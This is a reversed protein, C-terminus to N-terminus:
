DSARAGSCAALRGAREDLEDAREDEQQEELLMQLCTFILEQRDASLECFAAMMQVDTSANV